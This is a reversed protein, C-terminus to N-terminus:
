KLVGSSIRKILEIYSELFNVRTSNGRGTARLEEIEKRINEVFVIQYDTM